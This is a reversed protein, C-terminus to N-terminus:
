RVVVLQFNGQQNRVCGRRRCRVRLVAEGKFSGEFLVTRCSDCRYKELVADTEVADRAEKEPYMM